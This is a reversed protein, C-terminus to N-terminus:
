PEDELLKEIFPIGKRRLQSQGVFFRVGIVFTPTHTVGLAEAQDIEDSIREYTADDQFCAEFRGVDLGLEEAYNTFIKNKEPYSRWVRQEAFLKDYYRWFAGQESACEAAIHAYVSRSDSFKPFHRFSYFIHEGHQELLKKIDGRVARCVPCAFNSYEVVQVPADAPGLSRPHELPQEDPQIAPAPPEPSRVHRAPQADLHGPTRALLLPVAIQVSTLLLGVILPKSRLSGPPM